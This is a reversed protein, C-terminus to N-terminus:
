SKSSPSTMLIIFTIMSMWDHQTKERLYGQRASKSRGVLTFRYSLYKKGSRWRAPFIKAGIMVLEIGTRRTRAWLHKLSQGLFDPQVCDRKFGASPAAFKLGRDLSSIASPVRTPTPPVGANKMLPLSSV